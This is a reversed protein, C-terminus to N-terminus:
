NTLVISVLPAYFYALNRQSPLARDLPRIKGHLVEPSKESLSAALNSKRAASEKSITNQSAAM